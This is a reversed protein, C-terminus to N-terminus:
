LTTPIVVPDGTEMFPPVEEQPVGPRATGHHAIAINLLLEVAQRLAERDDVKSQVAQLSARLQALHEPESSM